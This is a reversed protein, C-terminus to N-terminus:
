KMNLKNEIYDGLVFIDDEHFLQGILQLGIPLGQSFGIPFSIAPLGALSAPVTFVDSFYMELPSLKEGIKFALTPTTPTLLVDVSKFAKRFEDKILERVRQARAYYDEYYGSSLSYIGLMIRRKVEDGFDQSRTQIYFDILKETTKGLRKGYRVGDYRALNASAEAPMLIYYVALSYRTLPLHVRKLSFGKHDLRNLLANINKKIAPELNEPFYEQPIGITLKHPERSFIKELEFNPRVDRSTADLEDKGQIISFIEAAERVTKTIPGIVDLSSALAILGNRSVSGYTPKLGVVGCFAAPQRISGGTDSGLAFLAEGAAVAAASGGSSGGPVRTNDWPNKTTFFGSNETSSGMAFEDLNTKGLFVANQSRLKKVATADYGARYDELIKSGATAIEGKILINDKIAAPIGALLPITKKQYIEKDIIKAQELARNNISLFASIKKEQQSIRRLFYQTVELASIKRAQLLKHIERITKKEFHM